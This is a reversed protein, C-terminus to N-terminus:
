AEAVAEPEDGKKKRRAGTTAKKAPEQEGALRLCTKLDYFVLGATPERGTVAAVLRAGDAVVFVCGEHFAVQVQTPQGATGSAARLLERAEHAIAQSREDSALTSALVTGDEDVLLASEIQSSIEVLDALAKAADVAPLGLVRGYVGEGHVCHESLVEGVSAGM